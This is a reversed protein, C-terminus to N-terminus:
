ALIIHAEDNLKGDYLGACGDYSVDEPDILPRYREDEKDDWLLPYLCEVVVADNLWEAADLIKRLILYGLIIQINGVLSAIVMVIWGPITERHREGWTDFFWMTCWMHSGDGFYGRDVWYSCVTWFLFMAIAVTGILAQLGLAFGYWIMHPWYGYQSKEYAPLREEPNYYRDLREDDNLLM